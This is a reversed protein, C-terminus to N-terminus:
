DDAPRELEVVNAEWDPTESGNRCTWSGEVDVGNYHASVLLDQLAHELAGDTTVDDFNHERM